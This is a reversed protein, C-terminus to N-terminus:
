NASLLGMRGLGRLLRNGVQFGLVLLLERGPFLPRPDRSRAFPRASLCVAAVPAVLRDGVRFGLALPIRRRDLPALLIDLLCLLPPRLGDRRSSASALAAPEGL